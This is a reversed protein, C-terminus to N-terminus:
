HGINDIAVFLTAFRLSTLESEVKAWLGLGHRGSLNPTGVSHENANYGLSTSLVIDEDKGTPALRYHGSSGLAEVAAGCHPGYAVDDPPPDAANYQCIGFEGGAFRPATATVVSSSFGVQGGYSEAGGWWLQSGGASWSRLPPSKIDAIDDPAPHVTTNGRLGRLTLTIDVPGGDSMVLLTYNGAEIVVRGEEADTSWYDNLIDARTCPPRECLSFQGGMLFRGPRRVEPYPDEVLAFGFYTGTGRTAYRVDPNPGAPDHDRRRADLTIKKPVRVPISGSEGAVIRTTGALPVRGRAAEPPAAGVPQAVVLGLALTTVGLLISPKSPKM